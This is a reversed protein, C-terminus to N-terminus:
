FRGIPESFDLVPWRMVAAPTAPRILTSSAMRCSTRGGVIWASSGSASISADGNLSKVSASVHSRLLPSPTNRAPTDANPKPPLLAWRSISSGGDILCSAVDDCGGGSVDCVGTAITPMPMLAADATPRCAKVSASSVLLAHRSLFPTPVIGGIASSRAACFNGGRSRSFARACCSAINATVCSAIESTLLSCDVDVPTYTPM